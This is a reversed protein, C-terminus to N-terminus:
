QLTRERVMVKLSSQLVSIMKDCGNLQGSFVACVSRLFPAQSASEKKLQDVNVKGGGGEIIIRRKNFYQNEINLKYVEGYEVVTNLSSFIAGLELVADGREDLTMNGSSLRNEYYKIREFSHTHRELLDLMAQDEEFYAEFEKINM